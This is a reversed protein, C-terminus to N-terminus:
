YTASTMTERSPMSSINRERYNDYAQRSRDIYMEFERLAEQRAM